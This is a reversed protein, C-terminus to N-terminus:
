STGERARANILRQITGKISVTEDDIDNRFPCTLVVRVFLGIFNSKEWYAM